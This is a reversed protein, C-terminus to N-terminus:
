IGTPKPQGLVSPVEKSQQVPPSALSTAVVDDCPLPTLVELVESLPHASFPIM